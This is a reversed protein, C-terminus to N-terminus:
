GDIAFTELCDCTKTLKISKGPFMKEFRIRGKRSQARRENWKHFSTIIAAQMPQFGTCAHLPSTSPAECIDQIQILGRLSPSYLYGAEARWNSNIRM